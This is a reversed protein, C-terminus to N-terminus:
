DNQEGGGSKGTEREPRIEDPKPGPEAGEAAAASNQPGERNENSAAEPSAAKRGDIITAGIGLIIFLLIVYATNVNLVAILVFALVAAFVTRKDKIASPALQIIAVIVLGLASARLAAMAGLVYRNDGIASIGNAIILILVFSPLTVGLTSILSGALGKKKYGVYTAMNIAIIGPLGQCIAVADVFEDKTFWKKDEILTNQLLPLMAIGGGITFAGLKFFVAFLEFLIGM